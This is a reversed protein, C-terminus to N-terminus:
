DNLNGWEQEKQYQCKGLMGKPREKKNEVVKEFYVKLADAANEADVVCWDQNNYAVIDGYTKDPYRSLAWIYMDNMENHCFDIDDCKCRINVESSNYAVIYEM